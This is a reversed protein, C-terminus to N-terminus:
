RRELLGTMRRYEEADRGGARLGDEIVSRAQQVQGLALYSMVLARDTEPRYREMVKARAKVLYPVALQHQGLLQHLLGVFREAQGTTSFNNDIILRGRELAEAAVRKEQDSLAGRAQLAATLAWYKLEIEWSGYPTVSSAAVRFLREAEEFRASRFLAAAVMGSVPYRDTLRAAPDTYSRLKEVIEAPSESELRRCFEDNRVGLEPNSRKFFPIEGLLRMAHAVGYLDYPNVGQREAYARWDPLADVVSPDIALPSKLSCMARVITRAALEQGRLSPHVHDDMLDWGTAGGESADRFARELDAVVAGRSEAARRIAAVSSAPPRWPMPDLDVSARFENAADHFRQQAALSRALVFRALAHNPHIQLARRAAEEAGAPDTALLDKAANMANAIADRDPAGLGTLDPEGLPAMDRENAPPTCVIIPVGRAACRDIMEGVFVELNRAAAARAPDDPGIHSQGVMAEMLTGQHLPGSPRMLRDIGQGIATGHYARILRITSPLRGASHLSSVGFAGYFENNGLYAVVLDPQYDLAETLIGLVPFAAIGPTGVNIVEVTRDPWVDSLMEKLFASARFPRPQPIGKAASEGVLIVRVTGRPKPMVLATPDLAMGESRNAFFYSNPGLVDTMVLTSGDSLKGVPHFTPPYGGFGFLRLVAEIVGILLLPLLLAVIKFVRRRGGQRRHRESPTAPAARPDPETIAM